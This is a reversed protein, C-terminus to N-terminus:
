CDDTCLVNTIIPGEGSDFEMRISIRAISRPWSYRVREEDVGGAPYM